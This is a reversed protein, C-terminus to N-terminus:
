KPRAPNEPPFFLFFCFFCVVFDSVSFERKEYNQMYPHNYHNQKRLNVLMIDKLVNESCKKMFEGNPWLMAKFMSKTYIELSIFICLPNNKYKYSFVFCFLFLCVINQEIFVSVKDCSHNGVTLKLSVDMIFSYKKIHLSRQKIVDMINNGPKTNLNYLVIKM